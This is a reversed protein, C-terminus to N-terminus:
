TFVFSNEPRRKIHIQSFYASKNNKQCESLYCELTLTFLSWYGRYIIVETQTNKFLKMVREVIKICNVFYINIHSYWKKYQKLCFFSLNWWMKGWIEYSAEAKTTM